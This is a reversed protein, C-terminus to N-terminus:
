ARATIEQDIIGPISVASGIGSLSMATMRQDHTGAM